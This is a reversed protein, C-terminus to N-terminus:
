VGEKPSREYIARLAEYDASTLGPLKEVFARVLSPIKSGNHESVICAFDWDLDKPWGNPYARHAAEELMERIGSPSCVRDTDLLIEDVTM